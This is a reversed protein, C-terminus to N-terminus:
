LGMYESYDFPIELIMIETGSGGMCSSSTSSSTLVGNVISANNDTEYTSFMGISDPIVKGSKFNHMGAKRVGNEFAYWFNNLTYSGSSPATSGNARIAVLVDSYHMQYQAQALADQVKIDGTSTLIKTLYVPDGGSPVNVTIPSYGDVGSPATYTGNETVSLSNIVPTIGGGSIAEIADPMDSPKYLTEQGNKTRIADAIDTLTSENILVVAM